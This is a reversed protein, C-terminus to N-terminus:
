NADNTQLSKHQVSIAQMQSNKVLEVEMETRRRQHM